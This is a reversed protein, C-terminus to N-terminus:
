ALPRLTRSGAKEDHSRRLEIFDPLQTLLPSGFQSALGPLIKEHGKGSETDGWELPYLSVEGGYDV